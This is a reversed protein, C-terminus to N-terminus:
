FMSVSYNSQAENSMIKLCGKVRGTTRKPYHELVSNLLSQRVNIHHQLSGKDSSTLVPLISIKIGKPLHSNPSTWSHNSPFYLYKLGDQHTAALAPLSRPTVTQCKCLPSAGGTGGRERLLEEGMREWWTAGSRKCTSMAQAAADRTHTRGSFSLLLLRHYSLSSGEQESLIVVVKSWCGQQNSLWDALKWSM